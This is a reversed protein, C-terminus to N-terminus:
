VSWAELHSLFWLGFQEALEPQEVQWLSISQGLKDTFKMYADRQEDGAQNQFQLRSVLWAQIASDLNPSFHSERTRENQRQVRKM